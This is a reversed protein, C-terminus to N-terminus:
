CLRQTNATKYIFQALAELLMERKKRAQKNYNYNLKILFSENVELMLMLVYMLSAIANM